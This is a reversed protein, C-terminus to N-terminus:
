YDHVSKLTPDYLLSLALFNISKFQLTPFSEKSDKPSCPSGVLWDLTFWGHINMALVSASASAGIIQGSSAFLWSVKFIRINPFISPLLLIPLCFNLHNSPMVAESSMLKLLSWSITFTLSDQCEATWLTTFRWVRSLLKVIAIILM